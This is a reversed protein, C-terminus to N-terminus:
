AGNEVGTCEPSPQSCVACTLEGDANTMNALGGCSGQVPKNAFISGAAMGLIALGFVIVAAFFAPLIGRTAAVPPQKKALPFDRSIHKVFKSADSPSDASRQIILFPLKLKECIDAGQEHGLVMVATAMADATMCDDAIICATALLNETPRCTVPDISHSYRKGDITEFNRYDGSTAMAADTLFAVEEVARTYEKPSEVGVRWPTGEETAGRGVIEGGVEVLFNNCGLEKLTTAVRDVAYGKAIASFDVQVDPLNKKMAPPDLRVQVNKYGVVAKVAAIAADDPIKFDNKVPGFNWLNVAPGVTVDFAGNTLESIEIARQMVQATNPDVDQWETSKSVNFKTVDSDPQYTSMLSNVHDLTAQVAEALENEPPTQENRIIVVRYVIPGM